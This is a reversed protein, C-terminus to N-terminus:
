TIRHSFVSQSPSDTRTDHGSGGDARERDAIAERARIADALQSNAEHPTGLQRAKAELWGNLQDIETRRGRRVDMCMSSFNEANQEACSRVFDALEEANPAPPLAIRRAIEAIEGCVAATTHHGEARRLVEGNPVDWLATLPNLVANAALKYWLRRNTEGANEVTAGLGLSAFEECASASAAAAAAASSTVAPTSETLPLPGIWTSGHGAHHVDRPQRVWAGHTTTAVLLRANAAVCAPVEDSIALAGNCLLLVKADSALRPSIAALAPRVAFAKTAVVLHTIDRAGGPTDSAEVHLETCYEETRSPTCADGSTIRVQARGDHVAKDTSRLLLTTQMGGATKAM